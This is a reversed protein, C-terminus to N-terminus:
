PRVSVTKETVQNQASDTLSQGHDTTKVVIKVAWAKLDDALIRRSKGFKGSRLEGSRIAAKIFGESMMTQKAAESITFLIM